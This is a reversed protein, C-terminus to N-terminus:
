HCQSLYFLLFRMSQLKGNRQAPDESASRQITRPDDNRRHPVSGSRM